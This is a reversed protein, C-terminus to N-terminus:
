SKGHHTHTTGAPSRRSRVTGRAVLRPRDIGSLGPISSGSPRGLSASRARIELWDTSPGSRYRSTRLKSVIGALALRCIDAYLEAGNGEFHHVYRVAGRSGLPEDVSLLSKLVQKRVELEVDTLDFGDLHLIDFSGYVLRATRGAAVARRLERLSSTGDAQPAVLQGDLLFTDAAISALVRELAPLRWGEIGNGLFRVRAADVRAFMRVGERQMEHLWMEDSPVLEAPLALQPAFDDPLEAPRADAIAAL